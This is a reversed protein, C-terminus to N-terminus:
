FCNWANLKVQNWLRSGPNAPNNPLVPAPKGAITADNYLTKIGFVDTESPWEGKVLLEGDNRKYVPHDPTEAFAFSDYQMISQADFQDLGAAENAAHSSRYLSSDMRPLFEHAPFKFQAAVVGFRCM